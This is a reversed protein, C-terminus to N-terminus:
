KVVSKPVCVGFLYRPGAWPAPYKAAVQPPPMPELLEKVLFGAQAFAHFYAQLPRHIHTSNLLCTQQATIRFPSEIIIEKGYSFWNEKAYGYYQPWFFPHTISFIFRGNAHLMKRACSVFATLHLVDMLVMNAVVVDFTRSSRRAYDELTSVCFELTNPSFSRALSISKGSPDIGTVIHSSETLVQCFFGVGCGADLIRLPRESNVLRLMNPLIINRYTVDAGSEIQQLRLSALADWEKSITASSKKNLRQFM